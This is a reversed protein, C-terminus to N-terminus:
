FKMADWVEKTAKALNFYLCVKHWKELDRYDKLGTLERLEPFLTEELDWRINEYLKMTGEYSRTAASLETLRHCNVGEYLRM